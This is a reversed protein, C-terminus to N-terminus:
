ALGEVGDISTIALKGVSSHRFRGAYRLEARLAARDTILREIVTAAEDAETIGLSKLRSVLKREYVSAGNM